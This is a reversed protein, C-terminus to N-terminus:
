ASPDLAGILEERSLEPGPGALSGSKELRRYWRSRGAGSTQAGARAVLAVGAALLILGFVANQTIAPLESLGPISARVEPALREVAFGIAVAGLFSTLFGVSLRESLTLTPRGSQIAAV